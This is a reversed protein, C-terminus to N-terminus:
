LAGEPTVPETGPLLEEGVAPVVPEVPVEPEVPTEPTIAPIEVTGAAPVDPVPVAAPARLIVKNRVKYDSTAEYHSDIVKGEADYITHYTKVKYGTYPSTKEKEPMGPTMTSDEEYVTTWPTTSLVENTVKAYRGDVNTGLVKVTLYNKSYETVIKIPYDTQNTFKYDPGGWSVTADM